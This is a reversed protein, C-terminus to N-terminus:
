RLLIMKKTEVFDGAQIKYFYIGSTFENADFKITHKGVEKYGSVLDVVKQGLSNYVSLIVHSSTKISYSIETSPNFPNPYNQELSYEGPQYIRDEVSVIVFAEAYDSENGNFDIATLKYYNSDDFISNDVFSTDVTSILINSSDLEFGGNNGKYITYHSLDMELNSNWNLYIGNIIDLAEAVFGTPTAPPISDITGIQVVMVQISIGGGAITVEGSRYSTLLNSSDATIRVDSNNTGSTPSVSLWTVNTKASWNVNSTISVDGYSEVESGLEISDPSVSLSTGTPFQTVKVTRKIDSGSITVIADRSNTASPNETDSTVVLTSDGFGDTPSISLWEASESASWSINSSISLNAINGVESGLAVSDPTVILSAETPTQAILVLRTIGEGAITITDIRTETTSPNDTTATARITGNNSGNTPAVTLWDQGNSVTWSINSTVNFDGYSGANSELLLSDPSVILEAPSRSQIVDVLKTLGGGTITVKGARDNITVNSENATVKVTGSNLGNAPSVDLWEVDSSASWNVNSIVSINDFSEADKGLLLSDPSLNLESTIPSKTYEISVIVTTLGLPVTFCGPGSATIDENFLEGTINDKLNLSVGDIDWCLTLATSGSGLQSTLKHETIFGENSPIINGYRFDSLASVTGDTPDPLVFRADFVGTPPLPPLEAEGFAADLGNTASPDVGAKLLLEGGVGDSVTFSVEVQQAYLTTMTLLLVVIHTLIKKM